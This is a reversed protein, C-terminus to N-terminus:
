YLKTNCGQLWNPPYELNLGQPRQYYEDSLHIFWVIFYFNLIICNGFIVLFPSSKCMGFRECINICWLGITSWCYWCSVTTCGLTFSDLSELLYFCFLLIVQANYTSFATTIKFTIQLFVPNLINRRKCDMVIM